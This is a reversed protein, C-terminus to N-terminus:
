PLRLIESRRSDHPVTDSLVAHYKLPAIVFIVDQGKATVDRFSNTKCLVPLISAFFYLCYRTGDMRVESASANFSNTSQMSTDLRKSLSARAMAFRPHGTM